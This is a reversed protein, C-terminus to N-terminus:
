LSKNKNNSSVQDMLILDAKSSLLGDDLDHPDGYKGCVHQYFDIMFEEKDETEWSNIEPLRQLCVSTQLLPIVEKYLEQKNNKVAQREIEDSVRFIDQLPSNPNYGKSSVGKNIDRRYLYFNDPFTLINDAKMLVSYTFAVDEWTCDELFRYDGILERKFLKNCCSPSEWFVRMPDKNLDILRGNWRAKFNPDPEIDGDIFKIGTTVVDPYNSDMIGQYMTEYMTPEICDDSDVFGIYDGTAISLGLNRTVSQGKNEENHYLKIQPYKSAYEKLIDLSNDSSADDIIIVEMDDFTQNVISDLCDRLYEGTNYVPVIISIRYM